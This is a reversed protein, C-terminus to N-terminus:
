SVRPTRGKWAGRGTHAWVMSNIIVAIQFLVAVPHLFADLARYSFRWSLLLRPIVGLAYQVVAVTLLSSHPTLLSYLALPIPAVYLLLLIFIGLIAFFPSYGFFAYANKSYGRWVEDTGEYMRTSVLGGGDALLAPYGARKVARALAVDELVQGRVAEHGGCAEYAERKFLMFQGNAAAFAPGTRKSFALPLPLFSYVAWHLFLPVALREAWTGTVQRPFISLLGAGLAQAAAVAHKVADRHFHVDADVFLFYGPDRQTRMTQYLRQCAHAKGLWGPPPEESATVVRLNPHSASLHELVRPTDDTSADDYVWVEFRPYSQALLSPLHESLNAAENRAPVLAVVGPGERDEAYPALRPLVLLNVVVIALLVSLVSLVPLAYLILPDLTV